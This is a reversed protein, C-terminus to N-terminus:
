DAASQLTALQEPTIRQLLPQFQAIRRGAINQARTEWQLEEDLFDETREALAPLVPKLYLMLLRFAAIGTSCSHQIEVATPDQRAREWPRKVELFRNTEDALATIQRMARRYERSEFRAAIEEGAGLIKEVLVAHDPTGLVHDFHRNIFRACRSAINVVKGVLDANIRNQLDELNLDIDEVGAGLRTAFYYRLCDPDLAELCRRARIFTGRSKSMKEGNVTLFGHAYVSSPMRLGAAQLLAPWFLGHFNIIDKGIFHYLEVGSDKQWWARADLGQRECFNEWSALYGIPADLWVYFYKGPAGPIEFGFYPADRSIDWEQLGAKLWEGLKATVQPQLRENQLWGDLHEAFDPLRFFYHLSERQEPVAGSLASRPNRLEAASYNAGCSECSDGYQEPEACRPCEGVIFRDALFLKKEPDYAQRVTREVIHGGERCRAYIWESYRRNEESHTSHYNDFLVHFDRFDQLHEERMRAILEEAPIGEERAKLMIATGHADDACIYYCQHGRLRQFRAWIDTQISELIHGLHLPGNAYPLASTVLIQRSGAAPASVTPM